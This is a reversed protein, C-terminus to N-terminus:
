AARMQFFDVRPPPAVVHPSLPCSAEPGLPCSARPSLPCSAEPGLPCSAQPSLPCSAEPGVPCSAQPSLPLTLSRIKFGKPIKSGRAREAVRCPMKSGVWLQWREQDLRLTGDEALRGVHNEPLELGVACKHLEGEPGIMVSNARGAHCGLGGPRSEQSWDVPHLGVKRLEGTLLQEVRKVEAPSFQPVRGGPYSIPRCSFEFRPDGGLEMALEPLWDLLPQLNARDVGLRVVVRYDGESDRLGRLAAWVKDFSGSGGLSVRRLDHELPPGDLTIQYDTCGWATLREIRERTLLTGNTTMSMSLRKRSLAALRQAAEGIEVMIPWAALPEGGYWDIHLRHIDDKGALRELMALVSRRIEPSMRKPEHGQYCYVCRLNCAETPLLVVQAVGEWPDTGASLAPPMVRSGIGTALVITHQDQRM